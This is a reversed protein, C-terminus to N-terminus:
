TGAQSRRTCPVRATSGGSTRRTARCSSGRSSAASGNRGVPSRPAPPRASPPVARGCPPGPPRHAACPSPDAPMVRAPASSEQEVSRTRPCSEPGTRFGTPRHHTRPPARSPAPRHRDIQRTEQTHHQQGIQNGPGVEQHDDPRRRPTGSQSPRGRQASLGPQAHVHARRGQTQRREGRSRREGEGGDPQRPRGIERIQAYPHQEPVPTRGAAALARSRLGADPAARRGARPVDPPVPRSGTRAGPRRRVDRAAPAVARDLPEQRVHEVGLRRQEEEADQGLEGGRRRARGPPGGARRVRCRRRRRRSAAAPAPRRAAATM